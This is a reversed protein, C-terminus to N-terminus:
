GAAANGSEGREGREDAKGLAALARVDAEGLAALARVDAEGLAALARVDALVEGPESKMRKNTVRLVRCDARQLKADRLRDREFVRRDSHYARSDLEVVLRWAPWFADVTFGAVLVNLGPPPLEAQRVLDLFARELESDHHRLTDARDRASGLSRRREQSQARREPRRRACRRNSSRPAHPEPARSRLRRPLRSAVPPLCNPASNRTERCRTRDTAVPNEGVPPSKARTAPRKAALRSGRRAM